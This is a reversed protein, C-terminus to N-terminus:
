RPAAPRHWEALADDWPVIGFVERLWRGFRQTKTALANTERPTGIRVTSNEM